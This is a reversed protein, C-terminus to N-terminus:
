LHILFIAPRKNLEPLTKKRWNEITDTYVSETPATLDVAVALWTRPSLVSLAANLLTQNRYPAEMFLQTAQDRLARQELQKLEARRKNEERALYGHFAFRQGDFGSLLLSLYLASPGVCAKVAIGMQRAHRVLLAGPDALCPLGADSVLGWTEGMKLPKLLRELNEFRFHEDLIMLPLSDRGFRKLYFRGEKESEAILGQLQSVARDVSIPLQEEHPAQKYLLNPLLYLTMYAHDSRM